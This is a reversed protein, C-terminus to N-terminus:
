VEDFHRFEALIESPLWDSDQILDLHGAQKSCFLTFVQKWNEHPETGFLAFIGLCLQESVWQETTLLGKGLYAHMKEEQIQSTVNALQQIVNAEEWEGLIRYFLSSYFDGILIALQQKQFKELDAPSDHTITEHVTLGMHLCATAVTWVRRRKSSLSQSCLFLHVLRIFDKPIPPQGLHAALYPHQVDQEVQHLIARYEKQILTM